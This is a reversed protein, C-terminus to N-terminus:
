GKSKELIAQVDRNGGCHVLHKERHITGEWILQEIMWKRVIRPREKRRRHKEFAIADLVNKGKGYRGTM